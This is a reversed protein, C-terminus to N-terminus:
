AARPLVFSFTTGKGRTSEVDLTGHHAEVIGKAIALGLGVGGAPQRGGQWYRDFVHPLQEESIGVGTDTVAFRVVGEGLAVDLRVAGGENTFKVANGLLNGFVQVIRGHDCVVRADPATLDATLSIHKDEALPRALEIAESVLPGLADEEPEMRLRGAELASVDLLDRILISM